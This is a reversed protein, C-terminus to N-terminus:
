FSGLIAIGILVAASSVLLRSDPPQLAQGAGAATGKLAGVTVNTNAFGAGCYDNVLIASPIYTTDLSQGNVTAWQAYVDFTDKLCKNCTIPGSATLTSGIPVFYVNYNNPASTNTVADVFCYSKTVTDTLCSVHYVPEYAILEQYVSQVVANGSNYDQACHDDHLLQKALSTLVSACKDVPQACAADLVHSTDVASTLVHFFSNSNGLLLSVALCDTFTSNSRFQNFFSVCSANAFNNSLTDFATPVDPYSSSNDASSPSRKLLLVGNEATYISETGDVHKKYERLQAHEAISVLSAETAPVDTSIEGCPAPASASGLSNSSDSIGTQALASQPSLCLIILCLVLTQRITMSLISCRRPRDFHSGRRKFFSRTNVIPTPGSHNAIHSGICQDPGAVTEM